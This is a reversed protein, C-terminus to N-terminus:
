RAYCLIHLYLSLLILFSCMRESHKCLFNYSVHKNGVIIRFLVESEAQNDEGM